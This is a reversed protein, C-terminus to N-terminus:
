PASPKTDIAVKPLQGPAPGQPPSLQARFSELLKRNDALASAKQAPRPAAARDLGPKMRAIEEALRAREAPDTAEARRAELSELTAATLNKLVGEINMGEGPGGLAEAVKQRVWRYEGPDYGLERAARLDATALQAVADM